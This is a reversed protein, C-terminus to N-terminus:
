RVPEQRRDGNAVFAVHKGCAKELAPWQRFAWRLYRETTRRSLELAATYGTRDEWQSYVRAAAENHDATDKALQGHDAAGTPCRKLDSYWVVGSVLGAKQLTPVPSEGGSKWLEVIPVDGWDAHQKAMLEVYNTHAYFDQLAHLGQGLAAMAQKPKGEAILEDAVRVREKVFDASEAIACNDFHAASHRLAVIDQRWQANSLQRACSTIEPAVNHTWTKFETDGAVPVRVYVLADRPPSSQCGACLVIVALSLYHRRRM